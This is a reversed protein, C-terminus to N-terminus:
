FIQTVTVRVVNVANVAEGAIKLVQKRENRIQGAAGHRHLEVPFSQDKCPFVARELAKLQLDDAAHSFKFPCHNPFALAFANGQCFLFPFVFPTLRCKICGLYGFDAFLNISPGLNCLNCPVQPNRSLRKVRRESSSLSIRVLVSVFANM